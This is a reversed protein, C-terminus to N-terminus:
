AHSITNVDAAAAAATAAAKRAIALDADAGDFLDNAVEGAEVEKGKQGFMAKKSASAASAAEAMRQRKEEEFFADKKASNEKYAQMLKNLQENPYEQTSVDDPEPDWPLWEGVDAVYVNHYPDKQHLSKARATAHENTAYVGRVKLGQVSTRFGNSKHFEDELKTRNTLMYRDWAEQITSEKFDSLNTKVHAELDEASKRALAERIKTVKACLEKVSNDSGSGSGSADTAGSGASPLNALDLEVGSLVDQLGRLQGLVFSETAKVKYDLAYFDLFRSIMYAEKTRMLAKEPTLFSLCVFKQGRIEDDSELFVQKKDTAM